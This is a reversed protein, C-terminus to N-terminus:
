RDEWRLTLGVSKLKERVEKLATEGFNKEELLEDATKTILKEVTAIGADELARTTRVSLGFEEITQTIAVAKGKLRALKDEADKIEQERCAAKYAIIDIEYQKIDEDYKKKAAKYEVKRAPVTTEYYFKIYHDDYSMSSANYDFELKVQSPDIGEPVQALLWALDVQSIDKVPVRREEDDDNDDEYDEQLSQWFEYIYRKEVKEDYDGKYPPYPQKPENM